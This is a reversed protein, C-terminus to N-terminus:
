CGELLPNSRLREYEPLQSYLRALRRRTNHYDVSTLGALRMVEARTHADDHEIADLFRQALLDDGSLERLKAIAARTRASAAPDPATAQLSAEAEATVFSAGDDEDEDDGHDSWADISYHRYREAHARDRRARLRVADLLHRDLPQISPDWRLVGLLTDTVADQVLEEAYYADNAASSWGLARARYAAFRRLRKLLAATCQTDFADIWAEPPASASRSPRQPDDDPLDEPKM